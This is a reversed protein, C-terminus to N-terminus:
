TCGTEAIIPATHTFLFLSPVAPMTPMHVTLILFLFLAFIFRPAKLKALPNQKACRPLPCRGTFRPRIVQTSELNNVSMDAGSETKMQNITSGAKGIVHGVVENQLLLKLPVRVCGETEPEVGLTRHCRLQCLLIPRTLASTCCARPLIYCDFGLRAADIFGRMAIHACHGLESPKM